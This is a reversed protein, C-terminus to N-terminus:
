DGGCTIELLFGNQLMRWGFLTVMLPAVKQWLINTSKCRSLEDVNTLINYVGHVAYGKGFRAALGV